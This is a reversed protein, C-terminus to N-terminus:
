DMKFLVGLLTLGGRLFFDGKNVIEIDLYKGRCKKDSPLVIAAKLLRAQRADGNPLVSEQRHLYESLHPLKIM